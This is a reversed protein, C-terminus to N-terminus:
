RNYGFIKQILKYEGVVIQGVGTMEELRQSTHFTKQESPVIIEIKYGKNTMKSEMKVIKGYMYGYQSSPHSDLSIQVSQGIHLNGYGKAPVIAEIFYDKGSKRLCVKVNETEKVPIFYCLAFLLLFIIFIITNGYRVTIPPIKGIIDQTEEAIPNHLPEM